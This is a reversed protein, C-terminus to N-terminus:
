QADLTEQKIYKQNPTFNPTDPQQVQLGKAINETVM